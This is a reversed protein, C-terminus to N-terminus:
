KLVIWGEDPHPACSYHYTQKVNGFAVIKSTAVPPGERFADLQKLTEFALKPQHPNVPDVNRWFVSDLAGIEIVNEPVGEQKPDPVFKVRGDERIINVTRQSPM